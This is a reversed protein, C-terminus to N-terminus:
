GPRNLRMGGVGEQDADIWFSPDYEHDPIVELQPTSTTRQPVVAESLLSLSTRLRHVDDVVRRVDLTAGFHQPLTRAIRALDDLARGATAMDTQINVGTVEPATTPSVFTWTVRYV